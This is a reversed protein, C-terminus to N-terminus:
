DDFIEAGVIEGGNGDFILCAFTATSDKHKLSRMCFAELRHWVEDAEEEDFDYDRALMECLFGKPTLRFKREGGDAIV